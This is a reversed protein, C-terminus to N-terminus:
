EAMLLETYALILPGVGKADNEVVPESFYYDLSGDRHQWGGLGAVLCIGGLRPSGDENKSLYRETIGYFAKEAIEKYRAPLYGLRVGRLLGAAILATGSTELYNREDDARNVIQYFMGSEHQYPLLADALNNLMSTLYRREFYMSEDMAAATDALALTFWGIARLWFNPSHGTEKDAWYMERSEDYGHYYLGTTEDRMLKEVNQFQRFSDLCGQMKRFRTEYEMYFPQAMYLGDLWVQNPYIDKHWFNGAKTRPMTDLQSRVLDMAKRYKEKGTLDYLRFLNKAPNINDLNYEEVRYTKISGDEQVYYGVFSDAFDLYKQDKTFTYLSLVANIMCGDIYNWFNAEGQRVREINWMPHEADSNDLLYDIYERLLADTEQRNM